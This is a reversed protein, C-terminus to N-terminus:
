AIPALRSATARWRSRRGQGRAPSRSCCAIGSVRAGILYDGAVLSNDFAFTGRGDQATAPAASAVALSSEAEDLALRFRAWDQQDMTPDPDAIVVLDMGGFPMGEYTRDYDYVAPAFVEPLGRGAPPTYTFHNSVDSIQGRALLFGGPAQENWSPWRVTGTMTLGAVQITPVVLPELRNAEAPAVAATATVFGNTVALTLAAVFPLDLRYEGGPDTRASGLVAGAANKAVVIAAAVGRGAPNTVKGTLTLVDSPNPSVDLIQEAGDEITGDINVLFYMEANAFDAVRQARWWTLVHTKAAPGAPEAV